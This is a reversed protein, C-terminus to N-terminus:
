RARRVPTALPSPLRSMARRSVLPLVALMAYLLHVTVGAFLVFPLVTRVEQGVLGGLPGIPIIAAFALVVTAGLNLVV